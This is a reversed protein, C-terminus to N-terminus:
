RAQLGNKKPTTDAINVPNEKVPYIKLNLKHVIVYALSTFIVAGLVDVTYHVHQLLVSVAVLITCILFINKLRKSGATYYFILLTATHGSFFLDKTLLKGTGFIEVFPDSLPIMEAPPNFPVIYMATIRFLVM